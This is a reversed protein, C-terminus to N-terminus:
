KSPTQMFPNKGVLPNPQFPNNKQNLIPTNPVVPRFLGLSMKPFVNTLSFPKSQAPTRFASNINLNKMAKNTDIPVGALPSNALHRPIASADVGTFFTSASQQGTLFNASQQATVPVVLALTLAVGFLTTAARVIRRGAQQGLLSAQSSSEPVRSLLPVPEKTL